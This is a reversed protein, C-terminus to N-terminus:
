PRQQASRRRRGTDGEWLLDLFSKSLVSGPILEKVVHPVLIECQVQRIMHLYTRHKKGRHHRHRCFRHDYKRVPHPDQRLLLRLYASVRRPGPRVAGPHAPPPPAPPPPPPTDSWKQGEYHHVTCFSHREHPCTSSASALSSPPSASALCSPPWASIFPPTHEVIEARSQSVNASRDDQVGCRVSGTLGGGLGGLSRAAPRTLEIDGQERPQDNGAFRDRAEAV